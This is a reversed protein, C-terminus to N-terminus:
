NHSFAKEIEEDSPFSAKVESGHWMDGVSAVFEDIIMIAKGDPIAEAADSILHITMTLRELQTSDREHPKLVLMNLLQQKIYKLLFCMDLQSKGEM